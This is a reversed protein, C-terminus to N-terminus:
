SHLVSEAEMLAKKESPTAIEEGEYCWKKSGIRFPVNPMRRQTVDVEQKTGTEKADIDAEFTEVIEEM